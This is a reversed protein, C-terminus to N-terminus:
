CRRLLGPSRVPSPKRSGRGSKGEEQKVTIVAGPDDVGVAYEVQEGNEEVM